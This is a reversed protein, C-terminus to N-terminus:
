AAGDACPPRCDDDVEDLLPRRVAVPHDREVRQEAGVEVTLACAHRRRRPPADLPARAPLERRRRPEDRHRGVDVAAEGDDLALPLPDVRAVEVLFFLAEPRPDGAALSAEVVADREELLQGRARALRRELLEEERARGLVRVAPQSHHRQRVADTHGDVARAEVVEDREDRLRRRPLLIAYLAHPDQQARDAFARGSAGSCIRARQVHRSARATRLTSSRLALASYGSAFAVARLARSSARAGARPSRPWARRRRLPAESRSRRRAARRPRPTCAARSCMSSAARSSSPEIASTAFASASSRGAGFAVPDGAPPPALLPPAPCFFGASCRPGTARRSRVSGVARRYRDVQGARATYGLMARAITKAKTAPSIM